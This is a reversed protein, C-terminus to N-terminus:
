SCGFSPVSSLRQGNEVARRKEPADMTKLGTESSVCRRKAQSKPRDEPSQSLKHQHKCPGMDKDQNEQKRKTIEKLGYDVPYPNEQVPFKKMSGWQFGCTILSNWAIDGIKSMEDVLDLPLPKNLDKLRARSALYLDGHRTACSAAIYAAFGGEDIYAIMSTM